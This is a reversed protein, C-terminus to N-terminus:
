DVFPLRGDLGTLALMRRVGPASSRRIRLRDSNEASRRAAAVLVAIGTSDIFTVESLDLVIAEAEGREAKALEEEIRDAVSLDLEGEVAIV